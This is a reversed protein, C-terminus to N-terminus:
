AGLIAPRVQTQQQMILGEVKEIAEEVGRATKDDTLIQELM